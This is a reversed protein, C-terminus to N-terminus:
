RTAAETVGTSSPIAVARLVHMPGVARVRELDQKSRVFLSGAFGLANVTISEFCALSRPVVLMWSRRVLLNYPASQFEGEPGTVATIGCRDLLDRYVAHLEPATPQSAICAFAHRFALQQGGVVREMPKEDASEPVLPLPVLQLHKRSQSAGAAAGGNYFGLGDIERLCTVLAAFDEVTLLREQSEFRRTVLLAHGPLVPFKNLLAYHSPGLDAVFLDPDYDSLPDVVVAADRAEGKRALSSVVRV